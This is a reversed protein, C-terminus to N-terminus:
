GVQEFVWGIETTVNKVSGAVVLQEARRVVEGGLYVSEEVAIGGGQARFRWGEGNAQKLLIGGNPLASVRVDPHVHFRISFERSEHIADDPTLRDVGTLMDGRPSLTLSREHTVGFSRVYADHSAEVTVGYVTEVRRSGVKAPGDILRPGLVERVRGPPLVIGSSKDALVATSHAATARLATEWRERHTGASGCNVILRQSATSFEFSLCGAHARQSYPDPPPVGCDFLVLTKAAAIRQYGSHPAHGFPQGRVEDRALLGAIMRADCEKGGNFLALAGDGHRFFRIMPAVRDHAIRLSQPVEKGVADASDLVMMLLRYADVLAEPSRTVHGGDPLIQRAIEAEFLAIGLDLRKGQDELCSGSLVIATAAELRPIGEAAETGFRALARSQERLSVFLKSRWMVDSHALVLRAHAFLNILRRAMVDPAWAPLDYRSNRKIWQSILNTALVRAPEGGAASLPPLWEFAHLARTWEASPAAKDFIAGEKIEVTEGSLRFRGRLLADADELRRPLADYPYFRVRDAIPGKLLRRYLWSRRWFSRLPATARWSLTRLFEPYLRLPPWRRVPAM